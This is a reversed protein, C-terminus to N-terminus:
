HGVLTEISFDLWVLCLTRRAGSSVVMKRRWKEIIRNKYDLKGNKWYYGALVTMKNQVGFATDVSGARHGSSVQYM